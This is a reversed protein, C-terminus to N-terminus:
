KPADNKAWIEIQKIECDSLKNENQPMFLADNESLLITRSIDGNLAYKKIDAYQELAIDGAKTAESHCVQSNCHMDMIRVINKFKVITDCTTNVNNSSTDIIIEDDEIEHKCAFISICFIPILIHKKM